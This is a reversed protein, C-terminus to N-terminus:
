VKDKAYYDEINKEVQIKKRLLDYFEQNMLPRIMGQRSKSKLIFQPHNLMENAKNFPVHKWNGKSDREAFGNGYIWRDREVLLRVDDPMDDPNM